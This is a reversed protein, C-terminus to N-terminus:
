NKRRLSGGSGENEGPGRAERVRVRRLGWCGVLKKRMSCGGGHRINVERVGLRRQAGDLLDLKTEEGGLLNLAHTYNMHFIRLRHYTGM